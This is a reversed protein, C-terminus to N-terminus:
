PLRSTLAGSVRAFFRSPLRKRDQLVFGKYAPDGFLEEMAHSMDINQSKPLQTGKRFRPEETGRFPSPSECMECAGATHSPNSTSFATVSPSQAQH